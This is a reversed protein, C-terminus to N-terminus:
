HEFDLTADGNRSDDRYSINSAASNLASLLLNNSLVLRGSGPAFCYNLTRPSLHASSQKQKSQTERAPAM